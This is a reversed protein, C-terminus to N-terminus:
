IRRPHGGAHRVPIVRRLVLGAHSTLRIKKRFLNAILLSGYKM